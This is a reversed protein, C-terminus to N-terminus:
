TDCAAALSAGLAILHKTKRDLVGGAYTADFFEQFKAMPDSMPEGEQISAGSDPSTGAVKRLSVVFLDRPLSGEEMRAIEVVEYGTALRRIKEESFFHVVFGGVQYLDEGRPIGTRYHKDFTSRVSYLNLGGPRLVRHIERLVFAIEATSLEMCLLMHSFCVDVSADPFPLPQRLDHVRAAVQTSVGLDRARATVEEVATPSYNLATVQLGHHAFLFTDRGQGFGFELVSKVDTRQFQRLAKQAFESPEEGFFAPAEAYVRGWHAQQNRFAEDSMNPM